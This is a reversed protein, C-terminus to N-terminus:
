LVINQHFKIFNNSSIGGAVKFLPVMESNQKLVSSFLSLEVLKLAVPIHM